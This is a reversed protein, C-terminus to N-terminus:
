YSVYIITKYEFVLTWKLGCCQQPAKSMTMSVLRLNYKSTYTGEKEKMGILYHKVHIKQRM